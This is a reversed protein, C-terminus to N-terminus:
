QYISYFASEYIDDTCYGDWGGHVTSTPMTKGTSSLWENVWKIIATDFHRTACFRNLDENPEADLMLIKMYQDGNNGLLYMDVAHAVSGYDFIGFFGSLDLTKGLEAFFGTFQYAFEFASMQFDSNFTDGAQDTFSLASDSVSVSSDEALTEIISDRYAILTNSYLRSVIVSRDHQKENYNEFFENRAKLYHKVASAASINLGYIRSEMGLKKAVSDVDEANAKLLLIEMNSPILDKHEVLWDAIFVETLVLLRRSYKNTTDSQMWSKLLTSTSQVDYSAAFDVDLSDSINKELSIIGRMVRDAYGQDGLHGPTFVTMMQVRAAKPQPPDPEVIDDDSKHCAALVMLSLLIFYTLHRKM